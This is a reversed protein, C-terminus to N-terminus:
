GASFVIPEGQEIGADRNQAREPCGPAEVFRGKPIGAVIPIYREPVRM